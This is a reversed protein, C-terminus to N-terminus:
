TPASALLRRPWEAALTPSSWRLTQARPRTAPQLLRFRVRALSCEASEHGREAAAAKLACAVEVEAAPEKLASAVELEAAAAELASAVELELAAAVEAAGERAAAVEAPGKREAAVEAASVLM